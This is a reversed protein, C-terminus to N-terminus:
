SIPRKQKRKLTVAESYSLFMCFAPFIKGARNRLMVACIMILMVMKQDLLALTREQRGNFYVEDSNLVFSVCSVIPNLIESARRAISSRLKRAPTDINLAPM